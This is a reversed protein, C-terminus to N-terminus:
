SLVTKYNKNTHVIQRNLQLIEYDEHNEFINESLLFHLVIKCLNDYYRDM